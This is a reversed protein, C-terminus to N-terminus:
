GDFTRRSFRLEQKRSIRAGGSSRRSTSFDSTIFCTANTRSSGRERCLLAPNQLARFHGDTSLGRVYSIIRDVVEQHQFMTIDSSTPQLRPHVMPKSHLRTISSRRRDLDPGRSLPSLNSTTNRRVSSLQAPCSNLRAPLSLRLTLQVMLNDRLWAHDSSAQSM